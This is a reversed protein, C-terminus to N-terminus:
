KPEYLSSTNRFPSQVAEVKALEVPRNSLEEIIEDYIATYSKEFEDLSLQCGCIKAIAYAKAIEVNNM